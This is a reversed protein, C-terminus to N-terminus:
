RLQHGAALHAVAPGRRRGHGHRGVRRNPRPFEAAPDGDDMEVLVSQAIRDIWRQFVRIFGSALQPHAAAVIFARHPPEPDADIHEAIAHISARLREPFPLEAHASLAADFTDFWLVPHIFALEEKTGVYRFVTRRSVGAHQAIRDITVSPGESEFLTVAADSLQRLTQRRHELRTAM